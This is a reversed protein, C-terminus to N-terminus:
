TIWGLAIGELLTIFWSYISKLNMDEVDLISIPVIFLWRISTIYLWSGESTRGWAQTSCRLSLFLQDLIFNALSMLVPIPTLWNTVWYIHIPFCFAFKNLINIQQIFAKKQVLLKCQPILESSKYYVDEVWLVFCVSVLIALAFLHGNISM